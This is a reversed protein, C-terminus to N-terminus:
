LLLSLRRQLSRYAIRVEVIVADVLLGNVDVAYGCVVAGPSLRIMLCPFFFLSTSTKFSVRSQRVM